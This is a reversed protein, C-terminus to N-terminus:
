IKRQKFEPLQNPQFEYDRYIRLASELYRDLLLQNETDPLSLEVAMEVEIVGDIEHGDKFAQISWWIRAIATQADEREPSYWLKKAIEGCELSTLANQNSEEMAQKLYKELKPFNNPEYELTFMEVCEVAWRIALRYDNKQLELAIPYAWRFSFPAINQKIDDITESSAIFDYDNKLMM